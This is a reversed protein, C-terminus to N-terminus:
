VTWGNKVLLGIAQEVLVDDAVGIARCLDSKKKQLVGAAVAEEEVTFLVVDDMGGDMWCLYVEQLTTYLVQGDEEVHYLRTNSKIKM